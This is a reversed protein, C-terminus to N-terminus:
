RGTDPVPKVAKNGGENVFEVTMDRNKVTVKMAEEALQYGTPASIEEFYYTGPKFDYVTFESDRTRFLMAKNEDETWRGGGCYYKVDSGSRKYVRFVASAAIPDGNQDVKVLTIDAGDYPDGDGGGESGGGSGGVTYSVTPTLFYETEGPKGNSDIPELKAEANTRLCELEQSGDPDYEGYTGAAKQPNTLEVTYTLQVPEFNSVPANITWVFHEEGEPYYTLEYGYTQGNTAKGPAFYYYTNGDKEAREAVKYETNGVKMSLSAADDVFKFDYPNGHNDTGYGIVDTVTTGADLLYYIDNQIEEFSVEKGNALFEMFSPGWPYRSGAGGDAPVSYCHYGSEQLERYVTATKYLAVDVTTPLETNGRPIHNDSSMNDYPQIYQEVEGLRAGTQGLYAAWDDPIYSDGGEDYHRIGWCDNGAMIAYEGNTSQQSNIAQAPEDFMYTIGDSVFIMYKRNAAVDTDNDLMEQAALLGAHTNTGSSIEEKIADEITPLNTDNLPTLGLQVNAQKNFIVVGVNVKASTAKIQDNLDGLMNLVQTEVEASTSKDLVFVVDSELTEQDSPLSLTVESRFSADLNTATKSKSHPLGDSPAPLPDGEPLNMPMPAPQVPAPVEEAPKAEGDAETGDTEAGDAETGDTETGDIETGDTETGDSETSDTASGDSEASDTESGSSATNDGPQTEVIAPGPDAPLESAMSPVSVTGLALILGLLLAAARHRLKIKSNM